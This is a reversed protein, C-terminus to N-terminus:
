KDDEHFLTSSNRAISQCPIWEKKWLEMINPFTLFIKSSLDLGGRFCRSFISIKAEYVCKNRDVDYEIAANSLRAVSIESSKKVAGFILRNDDSDFWFLNFKTVGGKFSSGQNNWTPPAFTRHLCRCATASSSNLFKMLMMAVFTSKEECIQRSSSNNCTKRWGGIGFAGKM